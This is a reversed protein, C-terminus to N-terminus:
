KQNTYGCTPYECEEILHLGDTNFMKILGQLKKGNHEIQIMNQFSIFYLNDELNTQTRLNPFNQNLNTDFIHM